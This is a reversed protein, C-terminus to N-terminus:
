PGHLANPLFRSGRWLFLKLRTSSWMYTVSFLSQDTPCVTEPGLGLLSASLSLTLLDHSLSFQVQNNLPCLLRSSCLPPTYWQSVGCGLPVRRDSEVVLTPVVLNRGGAVLSPWRNTELQWYAARRAIGPLLSWICFCTSGHAHWALPFHNRKYIDQTCFECDMSGTDGTSSRCIIKGM